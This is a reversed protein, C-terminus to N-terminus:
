ALEAVQQHENLDDWMRTACGSCYTVRVTKARGDVQQIEDLTYTPVIGPTKHPCSTRNGNHGRGGIRDLDPVGQKTLTVVEVKENDELFVDDPPLQTTRVLVTRGRVHATKQM